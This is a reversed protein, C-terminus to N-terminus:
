NITNCNIIQWKRKNKQLEFRLQHERQFSDRYNAIATTKGNEKKVNFNITKNSNSYYAYAIRWAEKNWKLDKAVDAPYLERLRQNVERSEGLDLSRLAIYQLLVESINNPYHPIQVQIHSQKFLNNKYIFNTTVIYDGIKRIQEYGDYQGDNNKDVLMNKGFGVGEFGCYFFDRVIDDDNLELLVFGGFSDDNSVGLYIYSQKKGQLSIIKIDNKYYGISNRFTYDYEVRLDRKAKFFDRIVFFASVKQIKLNKDKFGFGLIIETNGDLDLDKEKYYVLERGRTLLKPYKNTIFLYYRNKSNIITDKTRLVNSTIRVIEKNDEVKIKRCNSLLVFSLILGFKFINRNYM